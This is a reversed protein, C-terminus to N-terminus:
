QNQHRKSYKRWVFTTSEEYNMRWKENGKGDQVWLMAQLGQEM